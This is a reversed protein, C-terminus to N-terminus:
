STESSAGKRAEVRKTADDAPADAVISPSPCADDGFLEIYRRLPMYGADVLARAVKRDFEMPRRTLAGM